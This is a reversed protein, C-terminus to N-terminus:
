SFLSIFHLSHDKNRTIMRTRPTPPKVVRSVSIVRPATVGVGSGVRESLRGIITFLQLGGHQTHGGTTVLVGVGTGVSVGVAVRVGSGVSLGVAVGVSVLIGPSVGVGVSTRPSVGVAVRGGGVGPPSVGVDVGVMAGTSVGVDVTTGPSGGVAVDVDGKGVFVGGLADGGAVLVCGGGSAVGVNGNDVLM